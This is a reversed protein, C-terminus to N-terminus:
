YGSRLFPARGAPTARKPQLVIDWSAPTWSVGVRLLNPSLTRAAV